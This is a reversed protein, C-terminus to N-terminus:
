RIRLGETQKLEAGDILEGQKLDALLQKKNLLPEQEIYYEQPILSLDTINVSPPNKQISFTFLQGKFKKKGTVKMASEIYEKLSKVRIELSKRKAALRKEEDKFGNIDVELSKILKAINESKEEINGGVEDLAATIISQDIEDNELLEQLNRYNETLEYLNMKLVREIQNYKNLKQSTSLIDVERNINVYYVKM